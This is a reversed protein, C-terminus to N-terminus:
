DEAIEALGKMIALQLTHMLRAHMLWVVPEGGHKESEVRRRIDDAEDGLTDAVTKWFKFDMKDMLIM